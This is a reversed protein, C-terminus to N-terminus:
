RLRYTVYKRIVGHIYLPFLKINDYFLLACRCAVCYVDSSFNNTVKRKSM